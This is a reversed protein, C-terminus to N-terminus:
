VSLSPFDRLVWPQPDGCRCSERLVWHLSCILALFHHRHLSPPPLPPISHPPPGSPPLSRPAPRLAQPGSVTVSAWLVAQFGLLPSRSGPAILAECTRAAARPALLATGEFAHVFIIKLRSDLARGYQGDFRLTSSCYKGFRSPLGVRFSLYSLAPGLFCSFTCRLFAVPMGLTLLVAM